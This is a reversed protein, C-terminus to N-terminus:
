IGRKTKDKPILMVDSRGLGSEMESKVYYKSKLKVFLGLCFIHYYKEAEKGQPDYTSMSELVVRKFKKAFEEVKGETLEKLMDEIINTGVAESLWTSIISDYTSKIERNPIELNVRIIGDGDPDRGIIEPNSVTLYGSHLMISWIDDVNINKYNVAEDIERTTENGQIIENLTTITKDFNDKLMTRIMEDSGTNVWYSILRNDPDSVYNLISWPNYIKEKNFKYGNYWAKVEEYSDEKEYYKLLEKVEDKTFGFKDSNLPVIVSDVKLNNLGSFISEKAVRTVGTLIGKELYDNTKLAASLMNRIVEVVETYYGNCYGSIIPQDYEDIIIITKQKFYRYFYKMLDKLSQELDVKDAIGKQLGDFVEQETDVMVKKLYINSEYVNKIMRVIAKYCDEWKSAKMEKFSIFIVPYKGQHKMAETDKSIKLENFLYKNDAQIKGELRSEFDDCTSVGNDFFYRMMDLSLTKGFRRPRTILMIERTLIDSILESKDIFYCDKERLKKFSDIGIPLIKKNM